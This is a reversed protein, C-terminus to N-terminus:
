NIVASRYHEFMSEGFYNSLTIGKSALWQFNPDGAASSFDTNECYLVVYRNFAAGAVNSTSHSTKATAQANHVSKTATATYTNPQLQAAAVSSLALFTLSKM